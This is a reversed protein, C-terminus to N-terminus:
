TGGGAIASVHDALAVLDAAGDEGAKGQWFRLSVLYIRLEADGAEGVTLAVDTVQGLDIFSVLASDKKRIELEYWRRGQTVIADFEVPGSDREVFQSSVLVFDAAERGFRETFRAVERLIRAPLGEPLNAAVLRKLEVPDRAIPM